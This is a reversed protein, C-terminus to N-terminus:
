KSYIDFIYIEGVKSFALKIHILVNYPTQWNNLYNDNRVLYIADEDLNSIIGEQGGSGLNGKLFMDYNKNYKDLPIMYTAAMADLVYVDIGEKNKEIIFEDIEKISEMLETDIFIYSFHKIETQKTNTVYYYFYKICFVFNYLILFVLAFYVINRFISKHKKNIKNMFKSIVSSFLYIIGLISILSGILFHIKNSIPYVVVFSSISYAFLILIKRDKKGVFIKIFMIIIGIPVLLALVRIYWTDEFLNTYSITNTFTSVGLIAYDIFDYLANNVILYILFIACPILAGFLRTFAIKLFRIIDEKNRIAFIKYGICALSVILGTTQKCLIGLGAVLGLIFDEKFNYNLINEDKDLRNLELLVLILAILLTAYNYDIAYVDSFMLMIILILVLSIKRNNKLLKNLIKYSVFFIATLLVGALIRMVILENAILKLFIACIMSTLPTIIMNFDKYPVLGDAINKAFNYNWIEDLDNLERIIITSFVICFMFIIILINYIKTKDKKM